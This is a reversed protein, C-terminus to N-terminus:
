VINWHILILEMDIDHLLMAIKAAEAEEDSISHGKSRLVTIAKQM